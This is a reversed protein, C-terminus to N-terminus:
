THGGDFVGKICISVHFLWTFATLKCRYIRGNFSNNVIRAIEFFDWNIKKKKTQVWNCHARYRAHFSSYLSIKDACTTFGSSKWIHLLHSPHSIHHSSIIITTKIVHIHLQRYFHSKWTRSYSARHCTVFDQSSCKRFQIQNISLIEM